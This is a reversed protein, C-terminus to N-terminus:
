KKLNILDNIKNQLNTDFEANIWYGCNFDDIIIIDWKKCIQKLRLDSLIINNNKLWDVYYIFDTQYDKYLKGIM